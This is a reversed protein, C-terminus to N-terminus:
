TLCEEAVVVSRRSAWATGLRGVRRGRGTARDFGGLPPAQVTAALNSVRPSSLPRSVLDFAVVLGFFLVKHKM